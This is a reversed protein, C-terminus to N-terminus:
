LAHWSRLERPLWDLPRGHHRDDWIRFVVAGLEAVRDLVPLGPWGSVDYGYADCFAAYTARDMEGTRRRRAAGALDYELPGRAVWDLDILRPGAPTRMANGESVDGHITGEGLESGLEELAALLAARADLLLLALDPELAAVQSPMRSLPTWRPLAVDRHEDHFTRLLTGLEPWTVPRADALWPTLTVVGHTSVLPDGVSAHVSRSRQVASLIRGLHTADTGPPYVKVAYGDARLVVTTLESVLAPDRLPVPLLPRVEDLARHAARVGWAPAPLPLAEAVPDFPGFLPTVSTTVSM